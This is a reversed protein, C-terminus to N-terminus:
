GKANGAVNSIGMKESLALPHSNALYLLSFDLNWQTSSKLDTKNRNKERAQKECGALSAQVVAVLRPLKGVGAAQGEPTPATVLM